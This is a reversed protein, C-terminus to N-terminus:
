RKFDLGLHEAGKWGGKSSPGKRLAKEDFDVDAPPPGGKKGRVAVSANNNVHLDADPHRPRHRWSQNGYREEDAAAQEYALVQAKLASRQAKQEAEDGARSQLLKTTEPVAINKIQPKNGKKLMVKFVRAESGDLATGAAGAKVGAAASKNLLATPIAIDIAKAGTNTSRRPDLTLGIQKAFEREFDAEGELEEETKSPGARMLVVDEDEEEDKKEEDSDDSDDSLDDDDSLEDDEELDDDDEDSEEVEDEDEDESDSVEDDELLEGEDGGARPLSGGNSNEQQAALDPHAVRFEAQLKRQCAEWAEQLNTFRDLKPRLLEFTDDVAFAASLPVPGKALYYRQFFILFRDLKIKAAGRNFFQGCADLVTCVLRCRFLDHVPDIEEAPVLMSAMWHEPPHGYDLLLYLM